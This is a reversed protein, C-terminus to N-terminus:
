LAGGERLWRRADVGIMVDAAMMGAIEVAESLPVKRGYLRSLETAVRHYITRHRRTIRPLTADRPVALPPKGVLRKKPPTQTSM